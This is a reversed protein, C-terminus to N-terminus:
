GACAARLLLQGLRRYQARESYSGDPLKSTEALGQLAYRLATNGKNDIANPDAGAMLLLEVANTNKCVVAWILPTAKQQLDTADINHQELVLRSIEACDGTAAAIHIPARGSADFKEFVGDAVGPVSNM